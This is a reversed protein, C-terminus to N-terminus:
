SFYTIINFNAIVAVIVVILTYPVAPLSPPPVVPQSIRPPSCHLGPTVKQWCVVRYTCHAGAYKCQLCTNDIKDINEVVPLTEEGSSVNM